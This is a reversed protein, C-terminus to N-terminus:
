VFVEINSKTRYYVFNFMNIQGFSLNPFFCILDESVGYVMCYLEWRKLGIDLWEVEKKKIRM